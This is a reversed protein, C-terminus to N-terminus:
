LRQAPPWFTPQKLNAPGLLDAVLYLIQIQDRTFGGPRMCVGQLIGLVRDGARLPVALCSTAGQSALLDRWIITKSEPVKGTPTYPRLKALCTAFPTQDVTLRLGQTLGLEWTREDPAASAAALELETGSSWSELELSSPGSGGPERVSPEKPGGAPRHALCCLRAPCISDLERLTVTLIRDLNPNGAAAQAVKNLLQL